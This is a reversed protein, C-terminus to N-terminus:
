FVQFDECALKLTKKRFPAIGTLTLPTNTASGWQTLAWHQIKPILKGALKNM